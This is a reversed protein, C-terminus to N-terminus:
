KRKFHLKAGKKASSLHLQTSKELTKPRFDSFIWNKPRIEFAKFHHEFADFYTQRRINPNIIFFENQVCNRAM